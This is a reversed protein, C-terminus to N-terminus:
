KYGREYVIIGKHKIIASFEPAIKNIDLLDLPFDTLREADGFMKFFLNPENVGEVAIDIDSYERFKKRNLLSGWQYIRQPRYREIIMQKIAEFDRSARKYLRDLAATRRREKLALFERAKEISVPTEM